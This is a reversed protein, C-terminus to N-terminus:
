SGLKGAHKLNIAEVALIVDEAINTAHDGVRELSSAIFIYQIHHPASEPHEAISALSNLQLQAECADVRDDGSIVKRALDPDRAVFSDLSLRFLRQSEEALDRLEPPVEYSPGDLLRLGCEAINRSLDGVRELDSTLSKTALVWRLDTAVPARLALLRVIADDIEVDLRDIEIDDTKVDRASAADANWIGDLAKALISQALGGMRIALARLDELDRDTVREM